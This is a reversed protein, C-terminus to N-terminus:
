GKSWALAVLPVFITVCYIGLAWLSVHTVALAFAGAASLLLILRVSLIHALATLTGMAQALVATRDPAATVPIDVPPVLRLRHAPEEDVIAVGM